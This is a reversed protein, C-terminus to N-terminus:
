NTIGSRSSNSLSLRNMASNPIIQPTKLVTRFVHPHKWSLESYMPTNELCNQICPHLAYTRCYVLLSLQRPFIEACLLHLSSHNKKNPLVQCSFSKFSYFLHLAVTQICAVSLCCCSASCFGHPCCCQSFLSKTKAERRFIWNNLVSFRATSRAPSFVLTNNNIYM